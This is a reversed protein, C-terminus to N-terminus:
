HEIERKHNWHIGIHGVGLILVAALMFINKGYIGLLFFACVPLVAGAVPVGLLSSYFDAMTKESKFYRFWYIEYLIMMVVAGALWLSWPSWPRINFDRFILAVCTVAVEGVREFIRLVKNERVVYKEYDKPQNKTWWLNPILLMALFILGVYSFGFQM